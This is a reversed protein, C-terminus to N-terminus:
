FCLELTKTLTAMLAKYLLTVDFLYRRKELSLINLCKLHDKYSIDNQGLIIKRGKRQMHELEEIKRSSYAVM